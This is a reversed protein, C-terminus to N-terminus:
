LERINEVISNKMEKRVKSWLNISCVAFLLITMAITVWPNFSLDIMSPYFIKIIKSTIFLVLYVGFGIGIGWSFMSLMQIIYSKVLDRQDAGVARLTGIVRKNERICASISNNIVSACIVFSIIIISIMATLLSYYQRLQFQNYSYNSDVYGDYKQSYVELEKKIEEDKEDDIKLDTYLYLSEYNVGKKFSEMGKKSTVICLDNYTGVNLDDADNPSIIAGIKVEKSNEITRSFTDTKEDYNEQQVGVTITDGAKYTSEATLISEYRFQKKGVDEDCNVGNAYGNGYVYGIAEAKQPVILFVEEGSDLKSLDVKGDYALKNLKELYEQEVAVINTDLYENKIGLEAKRENYYRNPERNKINDILEETSSPMRDDQSDFANHNIVRFFDDVKPYELVVDIRKRGTVESFYPMSAINQKDIETIGTSNAIDIRYDYPMSRIDNKVISIASFGFCSFIITASLMISVATRSGNYFKLNRKAIHSPADFQKKTKIKKTKIKRANSVNRIAQMPTIRSAILLPVLASLMVVIINLMAAVPLAIISKTMIANESILSLLIRVIIYSLAISVPVCILTIIFAERGFIKIIQRKTTGVARLMGIQKKREKLNTNFANVIAVCSAFVLVLIVFFFYDGGMFLDDFSGFIHASYNTGNEQYDETIQSVYIYFAEEDRGGSFDADIYATLKEKGGPETQTNDAVFFAPTLTDFDDPDSSRYEINSKKDVLIGVLKYEKKVTKLYDEGNQVDLLLSITDGIKADKYGLRLLASKEVAIENEKTPLTGDTVIQYSIDRAKDDIWCVSAGQRKENKDTYAYGITHAFGFDSILEKDVAGQYEKEGLQESYIIRSQKGRQQAREENSTESASFMFFVISSSFVMALIIGIIMITYQKRRQKLNGLALTNVTLKKKM